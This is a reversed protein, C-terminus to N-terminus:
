DGESRMVVVSQLPFSEPILGFGPILPQYDVWISVVIREGFAAHNWPGAPQGSEDARYLQIVPPSALPVAIMRRAHQVLSAETMHYTGTVARRATSRAANDMLHRVMLLRGSEFLGLTLVLLFNLVIAAEVITAGRQRAYRVSCNALMPKGKLSGARKLM